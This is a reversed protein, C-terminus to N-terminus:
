QRPRRRIWRIRGRSQKLVLLFVGHFLFDDAEAAAAILKRIEFPEAFFVAIFQDGTGFVEVVVINFESEAILDDHNPAVAVDVGSVHLGKFLVAEFIVEGAGRPIVM